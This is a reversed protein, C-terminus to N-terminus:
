IVPPHQRYFELVEDELDIRRIKPIALFRQAIYHLRQAADKEYSIGEQDLIGALHVALRENMTADSGPAALLRSGLFLICRQQQLDRALNKWQRDSLPM